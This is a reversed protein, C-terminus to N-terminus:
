IMTVSAISISGISGIHIPCPPLREQPTVGQIMVKLSSRGRSLRSRVTGVPIGAVKATEEYNLGDLAISFLTSRQTIPLAALAKDMDRLDIRDLQNPRTVNNGGMWTIAKVFEHTRKTKRKGDLFINHLITLLWSKLNTGPTFLDMRSLARVLSDQLLDDADSRDRTLSRAYNRLSPIHSILLSTINANDIVPRQM